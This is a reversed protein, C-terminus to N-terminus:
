KNDGNADIDDWATIREPNVPSGGRTRYWFLDSSDSDQRIAIVPATESLPDVLNAEIIRIVDATPHEPEPVEDYVDEWETFDEPPRIDGDQLCYLRQYYADELLPSIRAWLDGDARILMAEPHDSGQRDETIVYRPSYGGMADAHVTNIAPNGDARVLSNIFREGPRPVRHELHYTTM